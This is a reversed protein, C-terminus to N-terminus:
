VDDYMLMIRLWKPQLGEHGSAPGGRANRGSGLGDWSMSARPLAMAEVAVRRSRESPVAEACCAPVFLASTCGGKASAVQVFAPPQVELGAATVM